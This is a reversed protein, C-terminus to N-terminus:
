DDAGDLGEAIDKSHRTSIKALWAGDGAAETRHLSKLQIASVTCLAAAGVALWYIWKSVGALHVLGLITVLCAILTIAGVLFATLWARREFPGRELSEFPDRKMTM